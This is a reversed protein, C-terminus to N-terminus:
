PAVDRYLNEFQEVVFQLEFREAIRARAARGLCGREDPSLSLLRKLGNAFANADRPAVTVGTDGIIQASDGVDTAVCPVECAMAEGIVNPFGEGFASSLCSVDFAPLLREIDSQEGLL